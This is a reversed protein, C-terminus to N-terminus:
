WARRAPGGGDPSELSGPPPQRHATEEFRESSPAGARHIQASRGAGPMLSRATIGDAAWRRTAEAAFLVNASKPQGYALWPDDPRFAFHLDDFIVPSLQHGKSSVSVIRAAGDAALADHLGLDTSEGAPSIARKM